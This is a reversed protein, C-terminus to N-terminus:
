QFATTDMVVRFVARSGQLSTKRIMNWGSNAAASVTSRLRTTFNQRYAADYNKDSLIDWNVGIETDDNLQVDAIVVEVMIQRPAVDAARVESLINAVVDNTDCVILSNSEPDASISGYESSMKGIALKLKEADLFKLVLTTMSLEPKPEVAAVAASAVSVVPPTPSVVPKSRDVLGAFPNKRGVVPEGSSENVEGSQAINSCVCLFVALFCIVFRIQNPKIM